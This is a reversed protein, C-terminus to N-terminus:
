MVLYLMPLPSWCDESSEFHSMPMFCHGSPQEDRRLNGFASLPVKFQNTICKLTFHFSEYASEEWDYGNVRQSYHVGHM